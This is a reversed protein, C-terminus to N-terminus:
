STTIIVHHFNNILDSIVPCGTHEVVPLGQIIQLRSARTQNCFAAGEGLTLHLTTLKNAAYATVVRTYLPSWWLAARSADAVRTPRHALRPDFWSNSPGSSATAATWRAATSTLSHLSTTPRYRYWPSWKETGNGETDTLKPILVVSETSTGFNSKLVM